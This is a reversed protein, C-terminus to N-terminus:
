PLGSRELWAVLRRAFKRRDAAAPYDGENGAAGFRERNYRSVKELASTLRKPDIGARRLTVIALGDCLLELTQLLSRDDDRRARFYDSWFYEHGVEHAVLAQLEQPDLLDLAPESVLVVARAHLAVAAQPVEIVKVVYVAERRHLELIRQAAALRKRQAADLDRVDGEPPLKALVDEKEAPSVPAPRVSDLQEVIGSADNRTFFHVAAELVRGDEAAIAPSAALLAAVMWVWPRTGLHTENAM